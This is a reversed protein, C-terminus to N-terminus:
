SRALDYCSDKEKSGVKPTRACSPALSQLGVIAAAIAFLEDVFSTLKKHRGENKIRRRALKRRRNSRGGSRFTRSFRPPKAVTAISFMGFREDRGLAAHLLSLEREARVERGAQAEDELHGHLQQERNGDDFRRQGIGEDGRGGSAGTPRATRKAQARLLGKSTIPEGLRKATALYREFAAVPIAAERRWRWSRGPEIGLHALTAAGNRATSKRDGGHPLLQALLEGVRREARLMLEAAHNQVALDFRAMKTFRWSAEARDRVYKVDQITRAKMLLRALRDVAKLETAVHDAM